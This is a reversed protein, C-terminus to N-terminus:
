SLSKTIFETVSQVFEKEQGEYGHQANEMVVCDYYTSKHYKDFFKKIDEIPRDAYEDAQSLVIFLPKSIQQFYELNPPESGYDFITQELSDKEFLSLYRKPTIPMFMLGCILDDGKGRSVLERMRILNQTLNPNTKVEILRDSMPSAAVVGKVRNDGSVAAYYGVKLAGTSHGVIYIDEYGQKELFSIGAEIDYVCERFDEYGAGASKHGFLNNTPNVTRLSTICEAGRNSFSAFGWGNRNCRLTLYNFIIMDGYFTGTLGHVWLIATSKRNKPRFSMGSLVLNDRTSIQALEYKAM